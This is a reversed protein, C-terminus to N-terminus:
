ESAAIAACYASSWAIQLNFGGTFGDVDLVEGAFFVGGVLKSEMTKPNIEKTNVGGKTIIAENIDRFSAFDFTFNKLTNVLVERDNKTIANVPKNENIGTRKIIVPILSKPLLKDLGNILHKNKGAEFDRMIRKELQEYTLAPKLDIVVKINKDLYKRSIMSSLTLICPGSMGFHTFLMEGFEEGVIKNDVYVKVSVNKLSLGMLEKCETGKINFPVLGPMPEIIGHGMRKAFTYGDGTSGTSKYSVGGTAIICKNGTISMRKGNKDTVIVKSFVGNKTEVSLVKTNLMIVANNKKLQKELVKIIDSSKDSVPFVRDGREIKLPCGLQEFLDMVQYNNFSYISSYMFKSNTVINSFLQDTDCANTVNCRGKGTIFLKKGLKENKEIITVKCGKESAIVGAFLGAAGGGVIIIDSM